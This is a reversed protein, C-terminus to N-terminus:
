TFADGRQLKTFLERFSEFLFKYVTEGAVVVAAYLRSVLYGGIDIGVAEDSLDFIEM